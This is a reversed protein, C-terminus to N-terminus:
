CRPRSLWGAFVGNVSVREDALCAAAPPLGEAPTFMPRGEDALAPTDPGLAAFTYVRQGDRAAICDVRGGSGSLLRVAIKDGDVPWARLVRPLHTPPWSLCRTMAPLLDALAAAWEGSPPALPRAYIGAGPAATV